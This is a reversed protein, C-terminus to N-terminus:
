FWEEDPVNPSQNDDNQNFNWNFNTGHNNSPYNYYNYSQRQCSGGRCENLYSQISQMQHYFDQGYYAYRNCQGNNCNM